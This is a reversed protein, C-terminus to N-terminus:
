QAMRKSVAQLIGPLIHAPPGFPDAIWAPLREPTTIIATEPLQKLTVNDSPDLQCIFRGQQLLTRIANEAQATSVPQAPLPLHTADAIRLTQVGASSTDELGTAQAAALMAPGYHARLHQAVLQCTELRASVGMLAVSQMAALTPRFREHATTLQDIADCCTYLAALDAQTLGAAPPPAMFAGPIVEKLWEVLASADERKLRGVAALMARHSVMSGTHKGHKLEILDHPPLSRALSYGDRMGVLSAVHASRYWFDCGRRYVLLARRNYHLLIFDEDAPEIQTVGPMADNAAQRLQAEMQNFANIYAEKWKAAEKGTFGMCLFTFGDRTLRVVPYKAVGGNPQSVEQSAEAFNRLRFDDSCDLTRIRKLVDDHRKGFHEAVYLSTTTPHGDVVCIESLNIAPVAQASTTM